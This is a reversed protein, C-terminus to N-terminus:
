SSSCRDDLGKSFRALMAGPLASGRTRSATASTGGLPHLCNLTASFIPTVPNRMLSLFATRSNREFVVADYAVAIRIVEIFDQWASCAGRLATAEARGRAARRM